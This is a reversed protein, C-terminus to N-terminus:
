QQASSSVLNREIARLKDLKEKEDALSGALYGTEGPYKTLYESIEKELSNVVNGQRMVAEHATAPNYIPNQSTKPMSRLIGRFM